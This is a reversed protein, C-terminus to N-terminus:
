GQEDKEEALPPEVDAAPPHEVPNEAPTLWRTRGSSHLTRSHSTNCNERIHSKTSTGSLHRHPVARGGRAGWCHAPLDVRRERRYAVAGTIRRVVRHHFGELTRLMAPTVTWTESGYLLVSQIVAKYFKGTVIPVAGERVLALSLRAWSAVAKKLNWHLVPWDSDTASIPRGFYRFVGVRTLLEGTATFSVTRAQRAMETSTTTTQSPGGSSLHPDSLPPQPTSHRCFFTVDDAAPPTSRSRRPPHCHSRPPTSFLLPTQAAYM